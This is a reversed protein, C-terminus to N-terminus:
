KHAYKDKEKNDVEEDEFISSRQRGLKGVYLRYKIELANAEKIFTLEHVVPVVM